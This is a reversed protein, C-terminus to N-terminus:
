LSIWSNSMQFPSPLLVFRAVARRALDRDPQTSLSKLTAAIYACLEDPLASLHDDPNLASTTAAAAPTAALFPHPSDEVSVTVVISLQQEGEGRRVSADGGLESGFRRLAGAPTVPLSEAGRSLAGRAEARVSM